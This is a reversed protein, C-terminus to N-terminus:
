IPSRGDGEYRAGGREKMEPLVLGRSMPNVIPPFLPRSSLGALPPGGDIPQGLGNLVRGLWSDGVMVSDSVRELRVQDGPSTGTSGGLLMVIARTEDFGIVEGQVSRTGRGGSEIRVVSGIPVRFRRVLVTMGRVSDVTGCVGRPEFGELTEISPSLLTM